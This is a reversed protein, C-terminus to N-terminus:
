AADGWSFLRAANAGTVVVVEEATRSQVGAIKDAIHTVYAPENRKGRQPAPALYPSDTEILLRDLPLRAIIERRSHANKYTIPGTVGIFFGLQIARQAADLSGSFSHLVGPLVPRRGQAQLGVLWDELLKLLDQMCPGHQADERERAHLVVPKKLESALLLQVQLWDRQRAQLSSDSVWYYDLGIEGIAVVRPSGALERLRDISHSNVPELETPHLGVAAYVCPHEAAIQVCRESSALSTGPTLLRVLGAALARQVVAARDRDFAESDLHCHTDTLVALTEPLRQTCDGRCAGM